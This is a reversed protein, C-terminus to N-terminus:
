RALKKYHAVVDERAAAPLGLRGASVRVAAQLSAVINHTVIYEAQFQPPKKREGV